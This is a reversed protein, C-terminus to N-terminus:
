RIKNASNQFATSLVGHRSWYDIASANWEVVAMRAKWRDILRAHSGYRRRRGEAFRGPRPSFVVHTSGLASMAFRCGVLKLARLSLRFRHGSTAYLNASAHGARVTTISFDRPADFISRTGEAAPPSVAVDDATYVDGM